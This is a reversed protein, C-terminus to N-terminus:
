KKIKSMSYKVRELKEEAIKLYIEEKRNTFYSLSRYYFLVDEFRVFADVRKKKLISYKYGFYKKLFYISQEETLNNESIFSALDFLPNNMSAVEWDILYCYNYRFLLNGRVLDNHCFTLDDKNFIREVDKITKNEYDKPLYYQPEVNSKYEELRKFMQYGYNVKIQSTHLKKLMRAVYNMIEENVLGYYHTNHIFKSLKFGNEEDLYLVKESIKLPEIVKYNNKEAKYSIMKETFPKPIRLVYSDNILYNLNTIGGDLFDISRVEKKSIENFLAKVNIEM